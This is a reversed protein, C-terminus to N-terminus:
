GKLHTFTLINSNYYPFFYIFVGTPYVPAREYLPYLAGKIDTHIRQFQLLFTYTWHIFLVLSTFGLSFWSNRSRRSRSRLLYMTVTMPMLLFLYIRSRLTLRYKLCQSDSSVWVFILSAYCLYVMFVWRSVSEVPVPKSMPLVALILLLAVAAKIRNQLLPTM